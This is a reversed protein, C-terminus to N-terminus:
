LKAVGVAAGPGSREKRVAVVDEVIWKAVSYAVAYITVMPNVGSPSPFLSGDAVYLGDVGWVKGRANTVGGSPTPSMRATGMQHASFMGTRLPKVGARAIRDCYDVTELHAVDMSPVKFMPVDVQGTVVTHAGTAVLIRTAAVLGKAASAGDFESIAYEVRPEGDEDLSVRGRDRDRVLVVLPVACDFMALQRKMEAPDGPWQALNAHMMPHLTTAEIKCGHFAGDRSELAPSVATMMSGEFPRMASPYYGLVTMAPHLALHRGLHPNRIGSRLLLAPTHIAGCAVVVTRSEIIVPLRTPGVTAAIGRAHRGDHTRLVRTATCSQLIHAGHRTADALWTLASSQKIARNCGFCCAGCQHEVNRTNQPIDAVHMGLKTCGDILVGNVRNHEIADTGVGIRDCVADVADQFGQSEFWSLGYAKAWERRLWDQPRLSASWNVTTGGGLTRGALIGISANEPMLVGHRDYLNTFAAFEDTPLDTPHTWTGQELVLVRLGAQALIAAAVGGGAGSGVIVADYRLTIPPDTASHNPPLTVFHFQPISSYDTTSPAARATRDPYGLVANLTAPLRGTANAYIFYSALGKFLTFTARHMEFPSTQLKALMKVRDAVALEAFATAYAGGSLLWTGKASALLNLLLIIKRLADRPLRQRLLVMTEEPTVVATGRLSRLPEPIDTAEPVPAVLTDLAAGLAALENATLDRPDTGAVWRALRSELTRPM